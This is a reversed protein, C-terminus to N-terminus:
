PYIKISCPVLVVPVIFTKHAQVNALIRPLERGQIYDSNIFDPSLFLIAVKAADIAEEIKGSWNEGVKIGKDSWYKVDYKRLVQSNRLHALFLDLFQLNEDDKNAYSIFIVANQLKPAM